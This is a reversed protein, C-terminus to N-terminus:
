EDEENEESALANKRVELFVMLIGFAVTIMAQSWPGFSLKGDLVPESRLGIVASVANIVVIVWMLAKYRRMDTGMGFYSDYRVCYMAYVMVGILLIAFVVLSESLVTGDYLGFIAAFLHVGLLILTTFFAYKYAKGHILEQREDYTGKLHQKNFKWVIIAIVAVLVLGVVVGSMYEVSNM